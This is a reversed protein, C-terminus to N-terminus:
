RHLLAGDCVVGDRNCPSHDIPEPTSVNLKADHSIVAKYPRLYSSQNRFRCKGARGRRKRYERIWAHSVLCELADRAAENDFRGFIRILALMSDDSRLRDLPTKLRVFVVM